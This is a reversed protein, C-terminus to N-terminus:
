VLTQLENADGQGWDGLSNCSEDGPGPVFPHDPDTILVPMHGEYVQLTVGSELQIGNVANFDDSKILRNPRLLRNNAHIYRTKGANPIGRLLINFFHMELPKAGLGPEDTIDNAM